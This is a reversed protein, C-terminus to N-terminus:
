QPLNLEGQGENQPMNPMSQIPTASNSEQPSITDSIPMNGSNGLLSQGQLSNYSDMRHLMAKANSYEKVFDPSNIGVKALINLAIKYDDVASM